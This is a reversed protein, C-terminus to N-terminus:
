LRTAAIREFLVTVQGLDDQSIPADVAGAVEALQNVVQNPDLLHSFTFGIAALVEIIHIAKFSGELRFELEKDFILVSRTPRQLRQSTKTTIESAATGAQAWCAVCLSALFGSSRARWCYRPRVSACGM